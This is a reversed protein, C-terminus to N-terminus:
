EATWNLSMQTPQRCEQTELLERGSHSPTPVTQFALMSSFFSLPSLSRCVDKSSPASFAFQAATYRLPLVKASCAQAGPNSGWYQFNKLLVFLVTPTGWFHIHECIQVMEWGAKLTARGRVLSGEGRAKALLLCSLAERGKSPWQSSHTKQFLSPAKQVSQDGIHLDFGIVSVSATWSTQLLCGSQPRGDSQVTNM